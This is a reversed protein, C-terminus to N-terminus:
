AISDIRDAVIFDNISLGKIAHTTLTVTVKNYSVFFDPHHGAREAVEAIKNVFSIAEAFTSFTYLKEIATFGRLTWGSLQIVQDQAEKETLPPFGGECPICKQESLKM